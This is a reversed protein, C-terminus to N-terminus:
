IRLSHIRERPCARESRLVKPCEILKRCSSCGVEPGRGREAITVASRGHGYRHLLEGAGPRGDHRRVAREVSRRPEQVLALHAV